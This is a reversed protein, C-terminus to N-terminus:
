PGLGGVPAHFPGSVRRESQKWNSCSFGMKLEVGAGEVGGGEGENKLVEPDAM